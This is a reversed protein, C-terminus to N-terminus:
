ILKLIGIVVLVIGPLFKVKTVVTQSIKGALVQGAWIMLVQMMAVLGIVYLSVGTMIVAIGAAFTDLALAIGLIISESASISGSGDLDAANPTKLVQIVLGFINLRISLITKCVDAEAAAVATMVPVAKEERKGSRVAQILQYCGVAILVVAGLVGPSIVKLMPTLMQGFLMSFGMALATCFGIIGLSGLPMRIRNLGYSMGVGFGDLSLALAIILAVGM